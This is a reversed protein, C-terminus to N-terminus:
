EDGVRVEQPYTTMAVTKPMNQETTTAKRPM